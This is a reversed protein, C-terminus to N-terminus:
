AQYVTRGGCITRLVRVDRLSAPDVAELDADLLAFDAYSGPEIRGRDHEGGCCLAANATYALLADRASIRQDPGLLEGGDSVRNVAAHMSGLATVPLVPTDVHLAFPMGLRVASGAPDMRAAREPGLYIAKHRDGWVEIHRSFFTPIVGCAKMRQLHEDSVLQAHILMHRLDKRPSLAFAKEFARIVAESAADGNTHVAVQIGLCHHRVITEEIEKEDMLLAGRFDPRTHYAERLAATFGQISGDTFYKLGGLRLYDGGFGWLGREILREMENSTMQLYARANLRGERALRMYANMLITADGEYGVGGDQFTTFGQRNYESVARTLRACTEDLSPKPIRAFADFAANEYLVGNPQGDEDLAVEGGQMKTDATYGFRDLAASNAYALHASIHVVLVPRDSAVSDLDQRTLHRKDSIASDDYGYGVIWERDDKRTEAALRKLVSAVSGHQPGCDVQELRESLTSLHSHTDIFGPYLFGGGLDVVEHKGQQAYRLIEERGGVCDIRGDSVCVAEAAPLADSLTVVTAGVFVTKKRVLMSDAGQPSARGFIAPRPQRAPM